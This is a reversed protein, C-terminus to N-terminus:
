SGAGLSRAAARPPAVDLELRGTSQIGPRVIVTTGPPQISEEPIQGRGEPDPANWNPGPPPFYGQPPRAGRTAGRMGGQPAAQNVAGGQLNGPRLVRSGSQGAPPAAQGRATGPAGQPAGAVDTAGAAAAPVEVPPVLLEAIRNPQEYIPPPLMEPETTRYARLMAQTVLASDIVQPNVEPFALQPDLRFADAYAAIASEDHGWAELVTGIQFHAWAHRPQQEVVQRYQRLAARLEGRQQLLLALNFRASPREPDLELARRYAEEAEAANGAMQLLNGLDNFVAADQPREQALRRQVDLAKSLNSPVAAWAALAVLPLAIAWIILRRV